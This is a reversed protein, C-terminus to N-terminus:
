GLLQESQTLERINRECKLEWIESKSAPAVSVGAAVRGSGSLM